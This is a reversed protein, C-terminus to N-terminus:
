NLGLKVGEFLYQSSGVVVLCVLSSIQTVTNVFVSYVHHPGKWGFHWSITRLVCVDTFLHALIFLLHLHTYWYLLYQSVVSTCVHSVLGLLLLWTTSKTAALSTTHLEYQAPCAACLM